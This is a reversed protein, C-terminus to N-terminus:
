DEKVGGGGGDNEYLWRLGEAYAVPLANFHDKDPFRQVVYELGPRAKGRLTQELLALDGTMSATDREGVSLYAKQHERPFGTAAEVWRLVSRNDWWISPSSILYRRFVPERQALAYLGFLSGLSHGAIALDDPRFVYRKALEPILENALFELFAGAGGTEGPEDTSATPTYDRARRNKPSRYSGGYGVGVLLLNKAIDAPGPTGSKRLRASAVAARFQDDGDMVLVLRTDASADDAADPPTDVFLHYDTGLRKSPLVFTATASLM